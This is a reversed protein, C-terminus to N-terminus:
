RLQALRKQLEEALHRREDETLFAGLEVERGDGKLTLYHPVPGKTPYLNVSVWYPNAQWRMETGNPARRLLDIREHSLTLVETLTADRYNRAFAWWTGGVVILIFPLIGWLLATGLLALLPLLLMLATGGIFMVFGTVPLSRYPRLTLTAKDDSGTWQYPM